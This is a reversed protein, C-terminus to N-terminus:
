VNDSIAKLEAELRRISADIKAIDPHKALSADVQL